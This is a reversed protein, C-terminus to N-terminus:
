LVLRAREEQKVGVAQGRARARSALGRLGRQRVTTSLLVTSVGCEMTTRPIGGARRGVVFNTSIHDNHHCTEVFLFCCADAHMCTHICTIYSRVKVHFACNVGNKCAAKFILPNNECVVYTATGPVGRKLGNTYIFDRGVKECVEATRVTLEAKCAVEDGSSLMKAGDARIECLRRPHLLTSNEQALMDQTRAAAKKNRLVQARVRAKAIRLGNLDCCRNVRRAESDSDNDEGRGRKRGGGQRFDAMFDDDESASDNGQELLEALSGVPGLDPPSGEQMDSM